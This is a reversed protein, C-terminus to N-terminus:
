QVAKLLSSYTTQEDGEISDVKKTAPRQSILTMMEDYMQSLYSIGGQRGILGEPNYGLSNGKRKGREVFRRIADEKPTYLLIEYLNANCETALKELEELYEAHRYIQPIVVDYGQLLHSKAIELARTKSQRGSEEPNERWNKITKRLEDIDITVALAHNDVYRKALTSKGIGLPGNLIILKPM